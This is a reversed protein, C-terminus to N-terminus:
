QATEQEERSKRYEEFIREQGGPDLFQEMPVEEREGGVAADLLVEKNSPDRGMWELLEDWWPPKESGVEPTIRRESEYEPFDALAKLAQDVHNAAKTKGQQDLYDGMAKLDLMLNSKKKRANLAFQIQQLKERDAKTMKKDGKGKEQLRKKESKLKSVPIDKGKPAKM